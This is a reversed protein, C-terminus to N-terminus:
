VEHIYEIDLFDSIVDFFLCFHFIHGNGFFLKVYTWKYTLIYM